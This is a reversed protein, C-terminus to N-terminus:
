DKTSCYDYNAQIVIDNQCDREAPVQVQPRLNTSIKYHQKSSKGWIEKTSSIFWIADVCFVMNWYSIRTYVYINIPKSLYSHIM